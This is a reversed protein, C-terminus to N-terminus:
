PWIQGTKKDVLVIRDKVEFGALKCIYFITHLLKNVRARDKEMNKVAECGTPDNYGEENKTSISETKSIDM